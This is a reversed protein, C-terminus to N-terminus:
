RHQDYQIKWTTFKEDNRLKVELNHLALLRRILPEDFINSLLAEEVINKIKNSQNIFEEEEFRLAEDIVYEKERFRIERGVLEQPEIERNTADYFYMRLVPRNESNPVYDYEAVYKGDPSKWCLDGPLEFNQTNSATSAAVRPMFGAIQMKVDDYQFIEDHFSRIIGKQEYENFKQIGKADSTIPEFMHKWHRKLKDLQFISNAKRKKEIIELFDQYDFAIPKIMYERHRELKDLQALFYLETLDWSSYSAMNEDFMSIMTLIWPTATHFLLDDNAYWDLCPQVANRFPEVADCGMRDTVQALVLLVDDLDTFLECVNEFHGTGELEDELDTHFLTNATTMWECPNFCALAHLFDHDEVRSIAKKATVLLDRIEPTMLDERIRILRGHYALLKYYDLPEYPPLAVAENSWAEPWDFVDASDDTWQEIFFSPDIEMKHFKILEPRDFGRIEGNNMTNSM